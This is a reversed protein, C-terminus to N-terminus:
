GGLAALAQQAAPRGHVREGAVKWWGKGEKVVRPDGDFEVATEQAPRSGEVQQLMGRSLMNLLSRRPLREVLETPVDHSMGYANGRQAFNHGFMTFKRLALYPM